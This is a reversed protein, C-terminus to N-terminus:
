GYSRRGAAGDLGHARAGATWLRNSPHALTGTFLPCRVETNEPCSVETKVGQVVLHEPQGKPGRAAPATCM